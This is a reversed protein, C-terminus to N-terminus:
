DHIGNGGEKFDGIKFDELGKKLEDFQAESIKDLMGFLMKRNEEERGLGELGGCILRKLLYLEADSFDVKAM